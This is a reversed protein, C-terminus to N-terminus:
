HFSAVENRQEAASGQRPREHRARLLRCHRHDPEEVTSRWIRRGATEPGLEM